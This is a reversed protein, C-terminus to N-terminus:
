GRGMSRLIECGMEIKENSTAYSIRFHTDRESFVEGAVLIVNRRVADEMFESGSAFRPPAKPFVYFGGSPRVFEFAGKLGECVLDRKARYATVQASMDVDFAALGGYQVAHPACVYIYQQLKAMESIIEAPGAAFGLRLGTMAHSKSFGRLLLTREPAFRVVSPNAGDYTLTCYIEDGILLLDHKRALEAVAQVDAERHVVGTPNSPSCVLIMKTKNTIAKAFREPHLQFDDYLDVMVPVGGVLRVLHKYSVFYPDGMVVEDGPNICALLVLYLGGSVGSTVLLDPSWNFEDKLQQAIRERLEPIGRTVTYGTKNDRIARIMAEKVLEPVPFDPQGISFDIPNKLSKGLDFARRIGSAGIEKVSEAIFQRSTPM